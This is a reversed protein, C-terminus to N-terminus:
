SPLFFVIHFFRPTAKKTKKLFYVIILKIRYFPLKMTFSMTNCTKSNGKPIKLFFYNGKKSKRLFYVMILKIRYPLIMASSMTHCTKSNGKPM